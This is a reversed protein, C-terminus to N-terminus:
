GYWKGQHYIKGWHKHKKDIVLPCLSPIIINGSVQIHACGPQWDVSNNEMYAFCEDWLDSLTGTKVGYRTGSYDTWPRINLKHDHATAINKGGRLVDNYSSHMGTHWRHKVILTDNFTASLGIRWGKLHHELKSGPVNQLEPICNSLKGDFRMDHNGLLFIRKSKPSAKKIQDLCNTGSELEDAISPQEAWGIRHFRGISPFDYWDGNVVVYKPKADEVLHLFAKFAQPEHGPLNHKDSAILIDYDRTLHTNINEFTPFNSAKMSQHSHLVVGMEKEVRRRRDLVNRTYKLNLRKAVERVSDSSEWVHIFERGDEPRMRNVM